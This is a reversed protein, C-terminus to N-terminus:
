IGGDNGDNFLEFHGDIYHSDIIHRAKRNLDDPLFSIAIFNETFKLCTERCAIPIKAKSNKFQLRASPWRALLPSSKLLINKM